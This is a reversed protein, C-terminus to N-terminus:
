VTFDKKLVNELLMQELLPKSFINFSVSFSSLLFHADLRQASQSLRHGYGNKIEVLFVLFFKTWLKLVQHLFVPTLEESYLMNFSLFFYTEEGVTKFIM